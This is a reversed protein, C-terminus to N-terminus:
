PPRYQACKTDNGHCSLLAAFLAHVDGRHRSLAAVCNHWDDCGMGVVLRDRGKDDTPLAHTHQDNVQQLRHDVRRFFLYATRLTDVDSADFLGLEACPALTPLLARDRLRPERGGRTLQCLQAIFEIERFCGVGRKIDNELQQTSAEKDILSKMIRLPELAGFDLYRRYVFPEILALLQKRCAADGCVVRAKILAYRELDRGHVAHYQELAGLRTTLSGSEGFPRLRMDVRFVFGAETAEGLLAVLMNGLRDFYAQHAIQRRGSMTEGPGRYIFQLNTDSSFNLEHGGLKGM